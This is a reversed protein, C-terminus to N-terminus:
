YLRRYLEASCPTVMWLLCKFILLKCLFNYPQAYESSKWM